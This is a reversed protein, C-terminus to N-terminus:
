GKEDPLNRHWEWAVPHFLLPIGGRETYNVDEVQLTARYSALMEGQGDFASVVVRYDGQAFLIQELLVEVIGRGNLDSLDCQQRSTEDFILAGDARELAVRFEVDRFSARAHYAIRFHISEGLRFHTQAEGRADLLAVEEIEFDSNVNRAKGRLRTELGKERKKAM